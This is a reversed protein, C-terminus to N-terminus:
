GDTEKSVRQVFIFQYGAQEVFNLNLCLKHYLLMLFAPTALFVFRQDKWVADSESVVFSAM